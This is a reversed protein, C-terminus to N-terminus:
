RGILKGVSELYPKIIRLLDKTSLYVFLALLMLWTAIHIYERVRPSLPKGIIAEITYFLIQGGDLIPLPLLNLVALNISIIALLLLLVKIGQAAGQSALSIIGIPGVLNNIGDKTILVKFVSLTAIINKNTKAIGDQIASVFSQAPLEVFDFEVGLSGIAKGAVLKEDLVLPVEMRQTNREVTVTIEQKPLPQYLNILKEVDQDISVNNIAVITDREQLGYRAAASDAIIARITPVPQKPFGATCIIIFAAYAFLLNALIGGFMVLLKQYYPKSVFSDQDTRHAELQEGQGVEAAGAMEVYGGLPIACLKFLTGGIQRSALVPGFGISFSPTHIKFVKCFLFHGFEHLVVLLTLGALGVLLLFINHWALLVPKLIMM